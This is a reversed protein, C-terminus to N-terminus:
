GASLLMLRQDDRRHVTSDGFAGGCQHSQVIAATNPEHRHQELTSRPYAVYRRSSNTDGAAERTFTASGLRYIGADRLQTAGSFRDPHTSSPDGIRQVAGLAADFRRRAGDAFEITRDVIRFADGKQAFMRFTDNAYVIDGNAELLAVGDTLWGLANELVGGRDGATRLRTAVDHARQYHPCLRQMLAIERKDVHGQKRTRQVSVLAATESTHELLAGLFYRLGLHSLFESYFPDRRMSDEDLIQHDWVVHGASQRLVFPFRPNLTAFHEVYPTRAATPVGVAHFASHRQVSKDFIELTAGAAGLMRSTLELAQPLRDSDLGSAYVAEITQLFLDNDPM